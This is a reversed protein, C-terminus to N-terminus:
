AEYVEVYLSGEVAKHMQGDEEIFGEGSLKYNGFPIPLKAM